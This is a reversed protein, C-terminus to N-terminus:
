KLWKKIVRLGIWFTYFNVKIHTDGIKRSNRFFRILYNKSKSVNIMLKFVTEMYFSNRFLGYILVLIHLTGLPIALQVRFTWTM